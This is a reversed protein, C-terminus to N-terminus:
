KNVLIKAFMNISLKQKSINFAFPWDQYAKICIIKEVAKKDTHNKEYPESEQM